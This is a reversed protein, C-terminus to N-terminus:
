KWIITNDYVAKQIFTKGNLSSILALKCFWKNFETAAHRFKCQWWKENTWKEAEPKLKLLVALAFVNGRLISKKKGVRGWDISQPSSFFVVSEFDSFFFTNSSNRSHNRLILQDISILDFYIINIRHYVM